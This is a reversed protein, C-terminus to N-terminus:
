EDESTREKGKEEKRRKTELQEEELIGRKSEKKGREARGGRQRGMRLINERRVRKGERVLGGGEGRKCFGGDEEEDGYM